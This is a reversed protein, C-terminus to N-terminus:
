TFVGTKPFKIYKAAPDLNSYYIKGSIFQTSGHDFTTETHPKLLKDPTRGFIDDVLPSNFYWWHQISDHKYYSELFIEKGQYDKSRIITVIDGPNCLRKLKLTIVNADITISFISAQVNEAGPILLQDIRGPVTPPFKGRKFFILTDGDKVNDLDDISANNRFEEISKGAIDLYDVSVAFDVTGIRRFKQAVSPVLDMTTKEGPIFKKTKLDFNSSLRSDLQYRDFQFQIQNFNFKSNKLRFAILNSGGPKTYALVVAPIFGIPPTYQGKENLNPQPSTMWLPLSNKNVYGIMSEIRNRMNDLSNPTLVSHEVENEIYPNKNINSLDISKNSRNTANILNHKEGEDIVDLYVVEYQINYNEDLAVATKVDGFLLTKTYHNQNIVDFYDETSVAKIGPLFLFRLDKAKGYDPDNLRYILDNPFIDLNNILNEFIRRQPASPFAKLYLNDFPVKNRYEVKLIFEKESYASKNETHARVTFKYETDFTTGSSDIRTTGNDLKFHDISARGAIAGNKLVVIGQPTKGGNGVLSFELPKNTSHKANIQIEVINGNIVKGLMTPTIWTIEEDALGLITLGFKSKHGKYDVLNREYDPRAFVFFEYKKQFEVQNSIKGVYWGTQENLGLNPPLPHDSGDFEETDFGIGYEHDEGDGFQDWGKNDISTIEYIINYNRGPETQDIGMADFKFSFFTDQRSINPRIEPLIQPMTTIFPLHRGSRDVTIRETDSTYKTSDVTIFEKALVQISYNQRSYNIGDSLEVTFEYFSDHKLKIYDYIFQDWETKDWGISNFAVEPVRNQYFFGELIGNSNFNIGPPLRGRIFKWNLNSSFNLEQAKLEIRCYTGDFFVGLFNNESEIIAPLVGSISLDFTRDAIKGDQNTARVTFKTHYNYEKNLSSVVSPIGYLRGTDSLTVGIPLDGAILHYVINDYPPSIASLQKTFPTSDAIIGLNKPTKWIPSTM